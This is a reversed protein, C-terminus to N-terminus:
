IKGAYQLRFAMDQVITLIRESTWIQIETAFKEIMERESYIGDAEWTKSKGVIRTELVTMPSGDAKKTHLIETNM